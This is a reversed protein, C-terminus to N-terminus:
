HQQEEEEKFDMIKKKEDMTFESVASVADYMREKEEIQVTLHFLTDEGYTTENPENQNEDHITMWSPEGITSIDNDDVDNMWNPEEPIIDNPLNNKTATILNEEITEVTTEDVETEPTNNTSAAVIADVAVEVEEEEDCAIRIGQMM